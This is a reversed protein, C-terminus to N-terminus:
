PVGVGSTFGYGITEYTVLRKPIEVYVSDNDITNSAIERVENKSKHIAVAM